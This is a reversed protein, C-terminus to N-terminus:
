TLRRPGDCWKIRVEGNYRVFKFVGRVMKGDVWGAELARWFSGATMQYLGGGLEHVQVIPRKGQAGNGIKVIELHHEALTRDITIEAFSETSNKEGRYPKGFFCYGDSRKYIKIKGAAQEQPFIPVLAFRRAGYIKLRWTARIYTVRGSPYEDRIEISDPAASMYALLTHPDAHWITKGQARIGDNVDEELWGPQDSLRLTASFTFNRPMKTITWKDPESEVHRPRSRGRGTNMRLIGIEDSTASKVIEWLIEEESTRKM